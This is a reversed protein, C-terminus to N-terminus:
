SNEPLFKAVLEYTLGTWTTFFGDKIAQLWTKKVPYGAARHLYDCLVEKSRIRHVNSAINFLPKATGTADTKWTLTKEDFPVTMVIDDKNKEEAQKIIRQVLKGTEGKVIHANKRGFVLTCKGEKVFKGGGLLPSHIKHFIEVADTGTPLNDFPLKAVGKQQMVGTNACGVNIGTGPEISKKDKVITEDDAYNGSCATDLIWSNKTSM